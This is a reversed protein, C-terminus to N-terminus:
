LTLELDTLVPQREMKITKRKEKLAKFHSQLPKGQSPTSRPIENEKLSNHITTHGHGRIHKNNTALLARSKALQDTDQWVTFKSETNLNKQYFKQSRLLIM